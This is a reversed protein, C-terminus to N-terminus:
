AAQSFALGTLFFGYREHNKNWMLVECFQTKKFSIKFMWYYASPTSPSTHNEGQSPISEGAKGLRWGKLGLELTMEEASCWGKRSEHGTGSDKTKQEMLANSENWSFITGACEFWNCTIQAALGTTPEGFAPGASPAQCTEWWRGGQESCLLHPARPARYMNIHDVWQILM